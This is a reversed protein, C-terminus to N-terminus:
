NYAIKLQKYVLDRRRDQWKAYPEEIGKLFIRPCDQHYFYYEKFTFMKGEFERQLYWRKLNEELDLLYEVDEYFINVATHKEKIIENIKNTYFYTQTSSYKEYLLKQVNGDRASGQRM